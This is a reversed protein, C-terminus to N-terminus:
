VQINEVDQCLEHIENVLRQYKQQPTEKLGCGEALQLSLSFTHVDSCVSLHLLFMLESVLEYDGSEYGVRRSKSIRESFDAFVCSIM